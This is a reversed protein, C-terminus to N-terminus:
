RRPRGRGGLGGGHQGGPGRRAGGARRGSGRYTSAAAPRRGDIVVGRLLVPDSRERVALLSLGARPAINGPRGPLPEPRPFSRSRSRRRSTATCAFRWRTLAWPRSRSPCTSTAATWRRVRAGGAGRRHGARHGLRLAQGARRGEPGHHDVGRQHAQGAGRRQRSAQGPARLHGRPRARAPAVNAENALVALKRPLLYNRGFGPKVNVLEGSKGLNPVDERLIVKMPMALTRRLGGARQLPHTGPWPRAQHGGGGPAPAQRLQGSIRRPIIKGRETVFYKLTAQDKFDPHSSKEACFRCVKKRGFGGADAASRTTVAPAVVRRRLRRWWGRLRRRWWGWRRLRRWWWWRWRLSRRWRRAARRETARKRKRVTRDHRAGAQPPRPRRRRRRTWARSRSVRARPVRVSPRPAM